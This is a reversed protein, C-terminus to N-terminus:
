RVRRSPGLVHLYGDGQGNSCWTLKGSDADSFRASCGFPRIEGIMIDVLTYVRFMIWTIGNETARSPSSARENGVNM